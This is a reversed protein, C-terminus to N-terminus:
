MVWRVFRRVKDFKSLHKPFHLLEVLQVLGLSLAVLVSMMTLAPVDLRRPMSSSPDLPLEGNAATNAARLQAHKGLPCAQGVGNM